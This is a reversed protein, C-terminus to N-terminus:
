RARANLGAARAGGPAEGTSSPRSRGLREALRRGNKWLDFTKEAYSRAGRAIEERRPESDLLQAIAEALRTPDRPPVLVGCRGQDLLEPIGAVSSAVVPTGVATAEKIVTPVADGLGTSPHVLVTAQAMERLVEDAPLWGRLRVRDAVGLGAVRRELAPGRPGDGILDLTVDLGKRRLIGLAIVLDEFGKAREFSGVGLLRAGPRRASAFPIGPMDLGPHHVYIKSSIRERLDPYREELFRRNFECVVVVNEVALLKRRLGVPRRYLDTGAHLFTSVPVAPDTLDRFALAATAAYNGWYSLIHDFRGASCDRAWTWAKALAYASKGLTAVGRAASALGVSAASGLFRASRGPSPRPSSRLASSFAADHVRDRPMVREDLIEPVYRWLDEQVPYLPFIELSAGAEILGRMDRAFFTSVRSPYQSTFVALRM